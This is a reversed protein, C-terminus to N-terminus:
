ETKEEATKEPTPTSKAVAKTPSSSDGHLIAMNALPGNGPVNQSDNASSAPAAQEAAPQVCFTSAPWRVSVTLETDRLLSIHEVSPALIKVTYSYAGEVVDSHVGASLLTLITVM